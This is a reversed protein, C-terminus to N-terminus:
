CDVVFCVSLLCCVACVFCCVGIFVVCCNWVGDVLMWGCVVVWLSDFLAIVFLLVCCVVFM